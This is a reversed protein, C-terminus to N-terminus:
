PMETAVIRRRGRGRRLRTRPRPAVIGNRIREARYAQEARLYETDYM